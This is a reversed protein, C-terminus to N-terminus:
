KTRLVIRQMPIRSFTKNRSKACMRMELVLSFFFFINYDCLQGRTRPEQNMVSFSVLSLLLLLLLLLVNTIRRKWVIHELALHAQVVTTLSYNNQIFCAGICAQNKSRSAQLGVWHARVSSNM